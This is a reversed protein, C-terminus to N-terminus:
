LADHALGLRLHVIRCRLISIWVGLTQEELHEGLFHAVLNIVIDRLCFGVDAQVDGELLIRLLIV